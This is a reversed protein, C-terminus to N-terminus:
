RLQSARMVDPPLDTWEDGLTTGFRYRTAKVAGRSYVEFLVGFGSMLWGACGNICSQQIAAPLLAFKERSTKKKETRSM